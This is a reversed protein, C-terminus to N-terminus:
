WGIEQTFVGLQKIACDSFRDSMDKLLHESPFLTDICWRLGPGVKIM